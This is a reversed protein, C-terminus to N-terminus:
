HLEPPALEHLMTDLFRDLFGDVGVAEEFEEVPRIRLRAGGQEEHVTLIGIPFCGHHKAARQAMKDGDWVLFEQERKKLVLAGRTAGEIRMIERVERCYISLPRFKSRIM